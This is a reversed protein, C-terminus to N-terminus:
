MGSRHNRSDAKARFLLSPASATGGVAGGRSKRDPAPAPSALQVRSPKPKPAAAAKQAPHPLHAHLLFSAFPLNVLSPDGAATTAVSWTDPSKQRSALASRPESSVSRKRGADERLGRSRNPLELPPPPPLQQSMRLLEDAIAQRRADAKARERDAALETHIKRLNRLEVRYEQWKAKLVKLVEIRDEAAAQKAAVSQQWEVRHPELHRQNETWRIRSLTWSRAANLSVLTRRQQIRDQVEYDRMTMRSLADNRRQERDVQQQHWVERKEMRKGDRKKLVRAHRKDIEGRQVRCRTDRDMILEQLWRDYRLESDVIALQTEAAETRCEALKQAAQHKLFQRQAEMRPQAHCHVDARLRQEEVFREGDPLRKLEALLTSLKGSAQKVTDGPLIEQRTADHAFRTPLPRFRYTRPHTSPPLGEKILQTEDVRQAREQFFRLVESYPSPELPGSFRGGLGLVSGSSGGAVSSGQLLGGGPSRESQSLPSAGGFAALGTAEAAQMPSDTGESTDASGASEEKVAEMGTLLTSSDPGVSVGAPEQLMAYTSRVDALRDQRLAEFYDHWLEQIRPSAPTAAYAELPVYSLDKPVVGELACARLSRPSAIVTEPDFEDFDAVSWPFAAPVALPVAETGEVAVFTM